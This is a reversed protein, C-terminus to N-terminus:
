SLAHATICICLLTAYTVYFLINFVTCHLLSIVLSPSYYVTQALLAICVEPFFFHQSIQLFITPDDNPSPLPTSAQLLLFFLNNKLSVICVLNNNSHKFRPLYCQCSMYCAHSFHMRLKPLFVQFFM